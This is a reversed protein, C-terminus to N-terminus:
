NFLMGCISVFSTGEYDAPCQEYGTVQGTTDGLLRLALYMPALGCVKWRDGVHKVLRFMGDADGGAMAEMLQGDAASVDAKVAVDVPLDGFAPGVHALDAAAVVLVRRGATAGNVAEVFEAVRRDEGPNGV